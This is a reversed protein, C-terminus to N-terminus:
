FCCHLVWQVSSSLRCQISLVTSGGVSEIFAVELSHFLSCCVRFRKPAGQPSRMCFWFSLGISFLLWFLLWMVCWENSCRCCNESSTWYFVLVYSQSSGTFSPSNKWVQFSCGFHDLSSLPTWSLNSADWSHLLFLFFTFFFDLMNHVATCNLTFTCTTFGTAFCAKTSELLVWLKGLAM